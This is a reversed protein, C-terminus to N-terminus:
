EYGGPGHVLGLGSGAPDADFLAARAGAEALAVALHAAVASRGVGARAGTIGVCHVIGPIPGATSPRALDVEWRLDVGQVDNLNELATRIESELHLRFPCAPTTLAITVTVDGGAVRVDRVLNRSVIDGGLEPEPIAKLAARIADATPM